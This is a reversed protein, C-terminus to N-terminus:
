ILDKIIDDVTCHNLEALKVLRQIEADRSSSTFCRSDLYNSLLKDVLTVEEFYKLISFYKSKEIVSKSTQKCTLQCMLCAKGTCGISKSYSGKIARLKAELAEEINIDTFQLKEHFITELIFGEFSPYGIFAASYKAAQELFELIYAGFGVSDFVILTNPETSKIIGGNGNSTDAKGFVNEFFLRGSNSDEVVVKSFSVPKYLLEERCVPVNTTTNKATVLKYTNQVAFPLKKIENRGLYVVCITNNKIAKVADKIELIEDRSYDDSDILLISNNDAYQVDKVSSVIVVNSTSEFDTYDKRRIFRCMATKGTSSDGIILNLQAKFIFIYKNQNHKFKFSWTM